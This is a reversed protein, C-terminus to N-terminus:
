ATPPGNRIRDPPLAPGDSITAPACAGAGASGRGGGRHGAGVIGALAAALAAASDYTGLVKWSAVLPAEILTLRGAKRCVLFATYGNAEPERPGLVAWLDGDGDRETESLWDGRLELMLGWLAHMDRKTLSNPRAPFPLVGAPAAASMIDRITGHKRCLPAPM